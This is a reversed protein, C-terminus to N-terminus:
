GESVAVLWSAAVGVGNGEGVAVTMTSGVAVGTSAPGAARVAQWAAVSRERRCVPLLAVIRRRRFKREEGPMWSLQSRM